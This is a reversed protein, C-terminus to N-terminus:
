PQLTPDSRTTTRELFQHLKGRLSALDTLDCEWVTLVRWGALNLAEVVRADRSVNRSVKAKWYESNAKPQRAGRKCDHGHWFCGNVMVIAKRGPFVIDPKGPLDTRHLRFRYGMSHVLRRVVLEPKTDRSKVLSMVRSRDPDTVM